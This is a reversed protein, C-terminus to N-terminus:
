LNQPVTNGRGRGGGEGLSFAIRDVAGGNRVGIRKIVEVHDM